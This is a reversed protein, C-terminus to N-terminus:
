WDGVSVWHDGAPGELTPGGDTTVGPLVISALHEALESTASKPM